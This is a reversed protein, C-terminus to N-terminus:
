VCLGRLEGHVEQGSAANTGAIALTFVMHSRSSHENTATAGVARQRMARALLDAVRGPRRVDVGELFSVSTVGKDDHSVQPSFPLRQTLRCSTAAVIAHRWEIVLQTYFWCVALGGQQMPQFSLGLATLQHPASLLSLATTQVHVLYLLQCLTLVVSSLCLRHNVQHKKGAPLAKGLLDKYEENYIELMSAQMCMVTQHRGRDAPWKETCWGSSM